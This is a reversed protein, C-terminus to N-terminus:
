EGLLPLVFAQLFEPQYSGYHGGRNGTWALSRDWPHQRLKAYLVDDGPCENHVQFGVRGAAACGWCGDATGALAVGFGLQWVDRPSYYVDMGLRASRLAPRLDYNSSVSPALLIIRDLTDPPLADAAALAVASGASHAALFVKKHPFARRYALIEQALEGGREKSYASDIQDVLFRGYGHSWAVPLVELPLHAQAVTQSLSKSNAQFGGAGDVAFIAGEIRPDCACSVVEQRDTVCGTAGALALAMMAFRPTKM